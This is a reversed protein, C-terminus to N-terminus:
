KARTISTSASGATCSSAIPASSGFDVLKVHGVGQPGDGDDFVVNEAKLDRHALGHTHMHDVALAVQAFVGQAQQESLAGSEVVFHFLEGGPLHELVLALSSHDVVVELLRVIHPHPPLVSRLANIENQLAEFADDDETLASRESVKLACEDEASRPVTDAATALYVTATAGAGIEDIFEFRTEINEVVATALRVVRDEAM